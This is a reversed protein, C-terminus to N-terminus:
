VEFNKAIFEVVPVTVANGLCKYRQTDSLGDTWGDPFGQLRECELPTLRRISIGNYIGHTDQVTLTFSPDGDEKFRRGNQRKKERDPTLVPVCIATRQAHNDLGKWYNADINTSNEVKRLQGRDNVIGYLGTKAGLGGGNAVLNSAIGNPDYIRGWISNHGKTDINGIQRLEKSDDESGFDGLPFIKQRSKGRLHGIIFVRERNQPVFYKSNFLQWEVDYGMEDLTNIITAFTRGEDHSLLNKVNELFMYQPKKESAIRAIEFFLNGREDQFGLGKGAVSFAQCPFGACLIQFDPLEVPNIQQADTWIRVGSFHRAYIQRAHSDIECAGVIQHGLKQLALDFGGIGSFLSFVQM